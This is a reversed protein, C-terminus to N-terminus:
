AQHEIFSYNVCGEDDEGLNSLEPSVRLGPYRCSYPDGDANIKSHLCHIAGTIKIM